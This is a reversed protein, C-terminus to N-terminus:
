TSSFKIKGDSGVLTMRFASETIRSQRIWSLFSQEDQHTILYSRALLLMEDASRISSSLYHEIAEALNNGNKVLYVLMCVIAIVTVTAVLILPQLVLRTWSRRRQVYM